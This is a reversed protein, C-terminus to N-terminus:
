KLTYLVVRYGEVSILRNGSVTLTWSDTTGGLNDHDLVFPNNATSSDIIRIGAEEPLSGEAWCGHFIYNGRICLGAPKNDEGGAVITSLLAPSDLDSLDLTLLRGLSSEMDAVALIGDGLAIRYVTGDSVATRYRPTQPSSVDLVTVGGSASGVYAYGGQLDVDYVAGSFPYMSVPQPSEPDSIDIIMLGQTGLALYVHDGYVALDHAQAPTELSAVLEPSAPDSLDWVQFYYDPDASPRAHIFAYNGRLALGQGYGNEATQGALTVTGASEDVHFISIYPASSLSSAVYATEGRLLCASDESGVSGSWSGRETLRPPPSLDYAKVGGFASATYGFLGSVALSGGAPPTVFLKVPNLPDAVDFATIVGGVVYLTSGVIELKSANPLSSFAAPTAEVTGTDLNVVRVGLSSCALFAYLVGGSEHLVMDEFSISGMLIDSDFSLASGPSTINYIRIRSDSGSIRYHMYITSDRCIIRDSLWTGGIPELPTTILEANEPDALSAGYIGYNDVACYAWGDAYTVADSSGEINCTQVETPIGPTSIDYIRLEMAASAALLLGGGADCFDVPGLMNSPYEIRRDALRVPRGPDSIDLVELSTRDAVYAYTGSIFVDEASDPTDAFSLARDATEVFPFVEGPEPYSMVAGPLAPALAYWYATDEQAASDYFYWTHLPGSINSFPGDESEARYVIYDYGDSPYPWEIRIRGEEPRIIPSLTFRSLPVVHIVASSWTSEGDASAATLLFAHLAGNELGTLVCPADEGCANELPGIQEGYGAQPTNGDTTYYVTYSSAGPVEEWSLSVAKNGAAAAFSPISSGPYILTIATRNTNNNWDVANVSVVIDSSFDTTYFSFDFSGDTGIEDGTLSGSSLSGFPGSVDWDVRLIEGGEDSVIGAVSQHQTYVAGHLPDTITVSPLGTDRVKDLINQGVPSPCATLFLSLVIFVTYLSSKSTKM